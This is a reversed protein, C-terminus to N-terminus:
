RRRGHKIEWFVCLGISILAILLGVIGCSPMFIGVKGALQLICVILACLLLLAEAALLIVSAWNKIFLMIRKM